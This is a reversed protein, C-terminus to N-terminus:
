LHRGEGQRQGGRQDQSRPGGFEARQVGELGQREQQEAEARTDQDVARTPPRDQDRGVQPRAKSRPVM